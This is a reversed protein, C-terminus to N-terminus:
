AFETSCDISSAKLTSKLKLRSDFRVLTPRIPVGSRHHCVRGTLNGYSGFEVWYPTVLVFTTVFHLAKISVVKTSEVQICFTTRWYSTWIKRKMVKFWSSWFCFSFFYSWESPLWCYAFLSMFVIQLFFSLFNIPYSM